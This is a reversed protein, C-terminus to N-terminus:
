NTILIAPTAGSSRVWIVGPPTIMFFGGFVFGVDNNAPKSDSEAIMVVGSVVQCTMNKTGDSLQTWGSVTMRQTTM